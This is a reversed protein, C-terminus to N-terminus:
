PAAPDSEQSATAQGLFDRLITQLDALSAQMRDPDESRCALCVARAAAVIGTYGFMGATGVLQHSVDYLETPDKAGRSLVDLADNVREIFMKLMATAQEAGVSAAISGPRPWLSAADPRCEGPPGSRMTGSDSSCRLLSAVAQLLEETEFPKAFHGNLGAALCNAVDEHFADASLALIPIRGREGPMARIARTAALGDMGPLHIDMLVIAFPEREVAAVAEEGTGATSVGYGAQELITRTLAQTIPNDEVVLIRTGPPPCVNAKPPRGPLESPAKAVSLPVTFRFTSGHGERSDFGITGGMMEVLAKCVALGLGTGGHTRTTSTDAQGFRKFLRDSRSAPIGIGTDRVSVQLNAREGGAPRLAVSLCVEGRETFKVANNLLNGIVQQLRTPDGNVRGISDPAFETRLVLGKSEAMPKVLAMCRDILSEIDFGISELTVHGGEIKSYDLIDNIINLLIRGSSVQLKVWGMQRPTLDSKMLLESFGLIGTLPTRLEHSIIAMFASKEDSERHAQTLGSSLTETRAELGRVKLWVVLAVAAVLVLLILGGNAIFRLWVPRYSQEAVSVPIAMALHWGTEGLPSTALYSPRGDKTVSRQIGTRGIRITEMLDPTAPTGIFIEGQESRAAIMLTRDLLAAVWGKATISSRLLDVFILPDSMGTMVYAVGGGQFVPVQLPIKGATLNGIEPKGSSWVPSPEGVDTGGAASATPPGSFDFITRERDHLMIGHISPHLQQALEARAQLTDMVDADTTQAMALGTLFSTERQILQEISNVTDELEDELHTGLIEQHLQEVTILLLLAYAALPLLAASIWRSRM